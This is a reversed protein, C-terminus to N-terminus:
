LDSAIAEIENQSLGFNEAVLIKDLGSRLFKKAIEVKEKRARKIAEAKEREAEAKEREAQAERREAAEIKDKFTEYAEEQIQEFVTMAGERAWTLKDAAKVIDEKSSERASTILYNFCRVVFEVGSLSEKEIQLMKPILDLLIPNIQKSYINMTLAHFVHGWANVRLLEDDVDDREVLMMPNNITDSFLKPDEFMNALELEGSYKFEGNYYVMPIINPLKKPPEGGKKIGKTRTRLWDDIILFSYFTLRFPMFRYETSQHEILIYVLTQEGKYPVTFLVDVVKHGLRETVLNESIIELKDLDMHKQIEAPLKRKLLPISIQLQKLGVKFFPDHRSKGKEPDPRHM